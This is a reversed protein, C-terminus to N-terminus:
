RPCGEAMVSDESHVGLAVVSTIVGAVIHNQSKLPVTLYPRSVM